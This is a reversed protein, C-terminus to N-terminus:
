LITTELMKVLRKDSYSVFFGKVKRFLDFDYSISVELSGISITKHKFLDIKYKTKIHQLYKTSDNPFFIVSTLQNKYFLIELKGKQYLDTYDDIQLISIGIDNKLVEIFKLSKNAEMVKEVSDYSYFNKFLRISHPKCGGLFLLIIILTYSLNRVIFKNKQNKTNKLQL